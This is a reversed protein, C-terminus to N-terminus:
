HKLCVRELGAIGDASSNVLSLFVTNSGGSKWRSVM